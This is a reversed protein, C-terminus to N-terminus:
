KNIQEDLWQLQKGIGLGKMPVNYKKIHNILYERYREGALIIFEDNDIDTEEKLQNLVNSGWEDREKKKYNNLTEDYPEIEDDLKLLEYKASLIFIKDPNLFKAYRLSKKFLPSIYLDEAKSKYERKKSVCQILVINM